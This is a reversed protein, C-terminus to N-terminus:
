QEDIQPIPKLPYHYNANLVAQKFKINMGETFSSYRLCYDIDDMEWLLIRGNRLYARLDAPKTYGTSSFIAGMVNSPRFDLQSSLKMFPLSNLNTDHDKTELLFWLNNRMLYVAGDIQEMVVAGNQSFQNPTPVEFPYIVESEGELEFARPIMYELALGPTWGKVTNNIIDEWLPILDSKALCQRIKEKYEYSNM